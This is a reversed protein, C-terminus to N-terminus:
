LLGGKCAWTFRHCADAHEVADDWGPFDISIILAATPRLALSIALLGILVARRHYEDDLWSLYFSHRRLNSHHTVQEPQYM